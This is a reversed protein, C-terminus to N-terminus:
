FRCEPLEINVDLNNSFISKWLRTRPTSVGLVDEFYKYYANVSHKGNLSAYKLLSSGVGFVNLGSNSLLVLEMSIGDPVIEVESIVCSFRRLVEERLELKQAPHFKVSVKEYSELVRALWDIFAFYQAESVVKQEVLADFVVFNSNLITYEQLNRLINGDVIEVNSFGPFSMKTVGYKKSACEGISSYLYGGLKSRNAKVAPILRLIQSVMYRSWHNRVPFRRKLSSWELYADVGDEIYHVEKCYRNTCIVSYFPNKSHPVFYTFDDGACFEEIVRDLFEVASGASLFKRSLLERPACFPHNYIEDPVSVVKVDVFSSGVGRCCLFLVDEANLGEGEVIASAVISNISSHIHFVYKM